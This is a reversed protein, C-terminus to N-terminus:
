NIAKYTPYFAPVLGGLAASVRLSVWRGKIYNCYTIYSIKPFTVVPQKTSFNIFRRSPNLPYM